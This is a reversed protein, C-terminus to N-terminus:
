RHKTYPTTIRTYVMELFPPHSAVNFGLLGTVHAYTAGVIGKGYRDGDCRIVLFDMYIM